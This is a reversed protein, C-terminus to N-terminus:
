DEMEIMVPENSLLVNDPTYDPQPGLIRIELDPPLASIAAIRPSHNTM